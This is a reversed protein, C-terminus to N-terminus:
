DEEHNRTTQAKRSAGKIQTLKVIRTTRVTKMTEYM